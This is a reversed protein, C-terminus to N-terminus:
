ASTCNSTKKWWKRYGNRSAPLTKGCNHMRRSCMTLNWRWNMAKNANEELDAMKQQLQDFEEYVETVRGAVKQAASLQHKAKQLEAEKQELVSMAKVSAEEKQMDLKDVRHLLQDLV